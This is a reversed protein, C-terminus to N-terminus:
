RDIWDAFSHIQKTNRFRRMVADGERSGADNTNGEVTVVRDSSFTEVFGVHGIRGLNPYYLSFVDGEQPYKLNVSKSRIIKERRFWSMAMANAGPTHIGASDFVFKVFGSCWPYGQTLGVTRMYQDIRPGMNNGGVERVGIENRFISVVKERSSIEPEPAPEPVHVFVVTDEISPATTLTDPLDRYLSDSVALEREIDPLRVSCSVTLVAALLALLFTHIKAM